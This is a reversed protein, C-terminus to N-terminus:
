PLSFDLWINPFLIISAIKIRIDKTAWRTPHTLNQIKSVYDNQNKLQEQRYFCCHIILIWCMRILSSSLVGILNDLWFKCFFTLVSDGLRGFITLFNDLFQDFFQEFVLWFITWFSRRFIWGLFWGFINVWFGNWYDVM